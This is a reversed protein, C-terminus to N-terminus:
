GETSGTERVQIGQNEIFSFEGANTAEHVALEAAEEESDAEVAFTRGWLEEIYVEYKGM